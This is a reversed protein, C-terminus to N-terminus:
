AGSEEFPGHLVLSGEADRVLVKTVGDLSRGFRRFLEASGSGDPADISGLEIPDGLRDVLWASYPGQGGSLDLSSVKIGAVDHDGSLLMLLGWGGARSSGAGTLTAYRTQDQPDRLVTGRIVNKFQTAASADAKAFLSRDELRDARRAMIAGWGLGSVAVIGAVVAAAAAMRLRRRTAVEKRPQSRVIRVVDEELRPSPDAPPVAFSFVAAAEEFEGSEKRCAACWALHRDVATRDRLAITALAYDPLRDRVALCNM